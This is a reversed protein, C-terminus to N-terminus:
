LCAALAGAVLHGLQSHPADPHPRTPAAAYAREYWDNLSLLDDPSMHEELFPLLVSEEFEIHQNLLIRVDNLRPNIALSM